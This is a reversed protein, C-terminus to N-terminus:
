KSKWTIRKSITSIIINRESKELGIIFVLTIIITFSCATVLFFNIWGEYIGNLLFPIPWALFTVSLLPFMVKKLYDSVPFLIAERLYLIRVIHLIANIVVKIIWAFVPSMGLLLALYTLPINLITITSILIWYKKVDGIALASQWLPGSVADILSYIMILRCFDITYNPPNGLWVQLIFNMCLISPIAIILSLYYSFKSAQFVLALLENREGLAYLKVIQPNYAVQFNSVFQNLGQILQTAIGVAANVTVGCFINILINVGQTSSINSFSGFLSWGSFSLLQKIRSKDWIPCFISATFHRNCYKKHILTIFLYVIFTLVSLQILKDMGNWKTLSFAVSLKLVAELISFYAYFDMKENAIIMAQYPMRLMNVIFGMLSLQFIWNAAFMREIPINMQTNLFWLGFTEGTILLILSFLIYILFSTSFVKEVEGKNKGMEYSLFRQTTFTLTINVFSLLLVIGGVINYIGFDTEGLVQLYVRSTYLTVAMILLMRFYLFLTNKAIRKNNSVTM